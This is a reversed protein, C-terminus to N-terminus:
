GGLLKTILLTIGQVDPIQNVAYGLAAGSLTKKL